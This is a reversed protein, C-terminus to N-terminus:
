QGDRLQAGTVSLFVDELNTPRVIVPRRNGRDLQSMADLVPTIDQAFIMLRNGSRLKVCRNTLCALLEFEEAETCDFEIAESHLQSKILERPAGQLISKGDSIIMVQDCLREAEDMYHTTLLITKGDAKLQRIKSWLAHRVAPDLGTTPEDLILLEPQNVLSMAVALRRKFGGSLKLVQMNAQSGLELFELLVDIRKSLVEEPILHHRGFIHLNDRPTLNEIMVNDQLMVGLRARVARTQQVVDWGFVRVQGRTPQIVGYVLRLITTKGAGNPGLLGFCLGAPVVLDLDSVAEKGAFAKTVGITEIISTYKNLIAQM